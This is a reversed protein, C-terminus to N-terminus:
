LCAVRDVAIRGAVSVTINRRGDGKCHPLQMALLPAGGALSGRAQFQITDVNGSLVGAGGSRAPWTRIVEGVPTRVIWGTSWDNNGSCTANDTSSCLQIPVGRRTAESRGLNLATIM